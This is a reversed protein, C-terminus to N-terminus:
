DDYEDEISAIDTQMAKETQESLKKSLKEDPKVGMTPDVALEMEKTLEKFRQCGRFM